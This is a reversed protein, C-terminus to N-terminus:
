LIRKIKVPHILEIIGVDLRILYATVSTVGVIIGDAHTPAEPNYKKIVDSIIVKDLIEGFEAVGGITRPQLEVKKGVLSM